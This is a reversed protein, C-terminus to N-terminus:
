AAPEVGSELANKLKMLAKGEIQRIRERSLGMAQGIARLTKPQERDLGFRLSLIKAEREDISDIMRRLAQREMEDLIIEDPPLASDDALLAELPVADDQRRNKIPASLSATRCRLACKLLLTTRSSLQMHRAVEDMTPTRGLEDELRMATQKARAIIDFMYAPIRITRVSTYLARRIGRKIWWTAYTSFRNGLDPDFHDVAHMLGLNGEEILDMLPLGRRRFMKAISVVLRLNSLILHEKAAADGQQRHRRSLDQEEDRSLPPYRAMSELYGQIGSDSRNEDAM